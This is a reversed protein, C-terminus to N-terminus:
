QVDCAPHPIVPSQLPVAAPYATFIVEGKSNVALGRAAQIPRSAPRVAQQPAATRSRGEVPPVADALGVTASGGSLTEGPNAPLGRGTRTFTRDEGPKRQNPCIQAIADPNAITEPLKAVGQTPDAEPTNLLIEGDLQPGALSTATIDSTLNSAPDTLRRSRAGFIGEPATIEVRGAERNVANATIDSNIGAILARTNININGGRADGTATVTINSNDRMLLYNSAQLNINGFDGSRTEATITGRDLRINSATVKLNGASGTGRSGDVAVSAGDRVRLLGTNITVSGAEGTDTTAATLRSPLRGDARVIRVLPSARGPVIEPVIGSTGTVEISESANVTLSGGKGGAFTDASIAAGDRVTLRRTTVTLNDANGANSDMARGTSQTFLGSPSGDTATGTLEVYETANITLTGAQGSGQTTALVQGGNQAILRGTEISINGGRGSGSSFASIGSRDKVIQGSAQILINGANGTGNTSSSIEGGDRLILERTSITLDQSNGSSGPETQTALVSFFQGDASRGTVEISESATVTLRGGSGESFTTSGVQAGDRLILRGTAITLDGANGTAPLTQGEEVDVQAFLGSPGNGDANTGSLEISDTATVSLNGGRGAGYTTTDVYGGGEAILQTAQISVTGGDQSGRTQSLIGSDETLVVRRGQVQITGGGEGSASVVAGQSLEIDQFDRVGAYGLAFGSDNFTLGVLSNAGVSGLEIRGGSATLLGGPLAIDGGVLALTQGLSVELGVPNQNGEGSDEVASVAVSRDVIQGPNPGFQLSTPISITLLPTTQPNTASFSTGDAFNIRDATTGLFSGGINLSANPGFIIGNPNLLFLNASGNTQLIGDINSISGGTVRTFINQITDANNFFATGGTPVSFEQFSHFLNRGAATGGEITFTNDNQTVTSNLPLTDDRVIQATALTPFGCIYFLICFIKLKTKNKM